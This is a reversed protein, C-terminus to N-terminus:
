CISVDEMDLARRLRMMVEDIYGADLWQGMGKRNYIGRTKSLYNMGDILVRNVYPRIMRALTEPNMPLVPGIFAYTSLGAQHLTKLAKIRGEISPAKPEFVRRVGDDDTTVTIGIEAHRFAKFLSMDRLVLPSKTLVDVPFPSASLVELCSRTVGYVKEAPQYPDTVTSLFISGPRAKLIQRELLAPANMKVDVFDGWPERHGTYRKMFSAYCYSCGHACGVYPNVCYSVGDIGSKSLISKAQIERTIM